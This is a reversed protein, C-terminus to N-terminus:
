GEQANADTRHALSVIKRRRGGTWGSMSVTLSGDDLLAQFEQEWQSVGIRTYNTNSKLDGLTLSGSRSRRMARMIRERATARPGASPDDSDPAKAAQLCEAVLGRLLAYLMEARTTHLAACIVDVQQLIRKDKISMGQVQWGRNEESVIGRSRLVLRTPANIFNAPPIGAHTEATM